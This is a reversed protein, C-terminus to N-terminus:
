LFCPIRLIKEGFESQIHFSRTWGFSVEMCMAGWGQPRSSTPSCVTQWSVLCLLIVSTTTTTNGVGVKQLMYRWDRNPMCFLLFLFLMVKYCPGCVRELRILPAVLSSKCDSLYRYWYTDDDYGHNVRSM